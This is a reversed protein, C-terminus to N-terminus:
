SMTSWSMSFGSIPVRSSKSAKTASSFFCPMACIISMTGLWM